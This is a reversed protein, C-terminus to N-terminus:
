LQWLNGLAQARENGWPQVWEVEISAAMKLRHVFPASIQHLGAVGEDLYHVLDHLQGLGGVHEGHRAVSDSVRVVVHLAPSPRSPAPPRRCRPPAPRRGNSRGAAPVIGQVRSADVTAELGEEGVSVVEGQVNRLLLRRRCRRGFGHGRRGSM